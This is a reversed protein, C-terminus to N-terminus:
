KVNKLLRYYNEIGSLIINRKLVERVVSFENSKLMILFEDIKMFTTHINLPLINLEQNIEKEYDTIILLDIDSNKHQTFKAYSGFLITIHEKPINELINLLPKFRNKQIFEIKREFEVKYLLPSFNNTLNCFKTKQSIKIEILKEEELSLIANYASKYNIKCKQSISRISLLEEKNELLLKLIKEKSTKVMVKHYKVMYIFKDNIDLIDFYFNLDLLIIIKFVMM